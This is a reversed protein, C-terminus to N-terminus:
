VEDPVFRPSVKQKIEAKIKAKLEDSLAIGPKLVVFIPMFSEAALELDIVM